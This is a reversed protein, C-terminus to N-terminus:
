ISRNIAEIIKNHIDIVENIPISGIIQREKVFDITPFVRKLYENVKPSAAM